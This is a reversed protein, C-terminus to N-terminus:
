REAGKLVKEEWWTLHGGGPVRGGDAAAAEGEGHCVWASRRQLASSDREELIVLSAPLKIEQLHTHTHSKKIM